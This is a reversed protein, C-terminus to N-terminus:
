GATKLVVVEVRRNRARGSETTNSAVPRAPGRGEYSLRTPDIGAEVLYDYVRAARERSLRMNRVLSGSSDTYGRVIVGNRSYTKLFAAIERLAPVAEELIRAEGPKFITKEQFSVVLGEATYSFKLKQRALDQIKLPTFLTFSTERTAHAKNAPDLWVFRANYFGSPLPDGNESSGSWVLTPSSPRGRGQIFSVKRGSRDLIQLQWSMMVELATDDVPFFLDMGPDFSRVAFTVPPATIDTEPTLKEMAELALQRQGGNEFFATHILQPSFVLLLFASLAAQILFRKM